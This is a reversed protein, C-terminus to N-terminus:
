RDGGILSSRRGNNMANFLGIGLSDGLFSNRRSPGGIVSSAVSSPLSGTGLLSSRRGTSWGAAAGLANGAISNRRGANWGAGGGGGGPPGWTASSAADNGAFTGPNSVGMSFPMNLGFTQISDTVAPASGPLSANTNGTMQQNTLAQQLLAYIAGQTTDSKTAPPAHAPPAQSMREPPPPPASQEPLMGLNPLGNSLSFSPLSATMTPFHAAMTGPFMYQMAATVVGIVNTSTHQQAHANHSYNDAASMTTHIQGQMMTPIFLPRIAGGCEEGNMGPAMGDTHMHQEVDLANLSRQKRGCPSAEYCRRKSSLAGVDSCHRKAPVNDKAESGPAAARRRSAKRCAKTNEEWGQQYRSILKVLRDFSCQGSFAVSSDCLAKWEMRLQEMDETSETPNKWRVNSFLYRV